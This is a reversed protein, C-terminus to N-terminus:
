PPVSIATRMFQMFRDGYEVPSVASITHKNYAISKWFHEMKKWFNYPTLVDIVGVFYLMDTGVNDENSSRLGGEEAYFMCHTVYEESPSAPLGAADLQVISPRQLAKRVVDAKKGSVADMAPSHIMQLKQDRRGEENGRNLDHIGVLLSYDMINLKKLLEVDRHLQTLLLERKDPGLQLKMNRDVWNRDKMVLHPNKILKEEPTLRGFTSGKLDYVEHVDKNAPFVNGMVVFHIKRSRPLKIRHLGYFRCLLTNPNECVHQYYKALIKRLFKHETHHITKIIFRYDLYDAADIHFKERLSRFVWPAYDKFKFDYKVGPTLETGTVDFVLKHAAHFDEETLDRRMKASVRGVQASETCMRHGETVRTGLSVPGPEENGEEKSENAAISAKRRTARRTARRAAIEAKLATQEESNLEGLNLGTTRSTSSSAPNIQLVSALFTNGFEVKDLANITPKGKNKSENQLQRRQLTDSCSTETPESIALDQTEHFLYSDSVTKADKQLTVNTITPNSQAHRTLYATRFCPSHSFPHLSQSSQTM